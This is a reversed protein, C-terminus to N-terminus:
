ASPEAELGVMGASVRWLEEQLRIDQTAPSSAAERRNDFYRGTIGEVAPDTALMVSTEAGRELDAGGASKWGAHLLKTSIVGPHLANSTVGTGKLRRALAFAFLVNALKSRSYADYGSYHREGQLNDWEIQGGRHTGSSVSIIRSPASAKLRELLLNTLLFPALHNVAFTTEFGDGTLTRTDQFVGANNILVDLRPYKDLIDQALARVQAMQALDALVLEVQAHQITQRIHGVLCEGRAQSRGHILVHHGLRALDIATQMGIGDTAGTVLMTKSPM